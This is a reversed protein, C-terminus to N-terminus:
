HGPEPPMTEAIEQDTVVYNHDGTHGNEYVCRLDDYEGVRRAPCRTDKEPLAAGCDCDDGRGTIAAICDARHPRGTEKPPPPLTDKESEDQDGPGYDRLLKAENDPLPTFVEQVWNKTTLLDKAIDAHYRCKQCGADDHETLEHGLSRWQEIEDAAEWILEADSDDPCCVQRLKETDVM